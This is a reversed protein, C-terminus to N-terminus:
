LKAGKLQSQAVQSSGRRVVTGTPFLQGRNLAAVLLLSGPRFDKQAILAPLAKASARGVLIRGIVAAAGVTSTGIQSIRCAIM